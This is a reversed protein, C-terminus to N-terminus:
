RLLPLLAPLLPASFFIANASLFRSSFPSLLKFPHKWYPNRGETERLLTAAEEWDDLVGSDGDENGQRGAAGSGGEEEFWPDVYAERAGPPPQSVNARTKAKDGM